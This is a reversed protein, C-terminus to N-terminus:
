VGKPIKLAAPVIFDGIKLGNKDFFGYPLEIAHTSASKQAPYRAKGEKDVPMAMKETIKGKDDTFVLDLPFEVDKMWFPGTCDFIMGSMKGLSARKSLGRTRKEFTDAIELFAACKVKGSEDKVCFAKPKGFIRKIEDDSLLEGTAPVKKVMKAKKSLEFAYKVLSRAWVHCVAKKILKRANKRSM